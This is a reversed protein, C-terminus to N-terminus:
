ESKLIMEVDSLSSVRVLQSRLENANDLGSIYWGLHKRMQVFAKPEPYLEVFKQTHEIMVKFLEEKSVKQPLETHLSTASNSNRVENFIWPNGFTTRGLLAGKAGTTEIVKAFDDSTKIDGNAIVPIGYSKAVDVGKKIEDWNAYGTYMQKLTRGHITIWDPKVECLSSIWQETIPQDYGTRTKVSVPLPTSYPSNSIDKNSNKSILEQIWQTENIHQIVRDKLGTLKKTQFYDTVGQRTAIVIEKALEPTRILGAGSGSSAVNKAPCGMNIDVGDYGLHCMLKAAHYFYEPEKGYIQAIIPRQMEDYHFSHLLNDGALCIGMVHVFETFMFDPKGYKATIFRFPSDTVADMPSLGIIPKTYEHINFM